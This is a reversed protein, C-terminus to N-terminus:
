PAHPLALLDRHGVVCTGSAAHELRFRRWDELAACDLHAAVADAIGGILERVLPAQAGDLHWPSRATYLVFGARALKERLFDTAGPGLAAGLGKDRLQDQNFAKLVAGDLSHAPTWRTIGDYNLAAYFASRNDLRAVLAACFDRSALDFLASATVLSAGYLPLQQVDNLDLQHIELRHTGGHRRAAEELLKGDQDVLRWLPHLAAVANLARLTAGTGAGLDVVLPASSSALWKLLTRVLTSDRAARDAPERLNLWQISFGSM